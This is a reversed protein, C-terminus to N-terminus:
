KSIDKPTKIKDGYLRMFKAIDPKESEEKNSKKSKKGTIAEVIKNVLIISKQEEFDFGYDYIMM